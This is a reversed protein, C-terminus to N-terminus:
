PGGLSVWVRCANTERDLRVTLLRLWLPEVHRSMTWEDTNAYERPLIDDGNEYYQVGWITKEMRTLADRSVLHCADESIDAGWADGQPLPVKDAIAWLQVSLPDSRNMVLMAGLVGLVAITALGFKVIDRRLRGERM